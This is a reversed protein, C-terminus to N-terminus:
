AEPSGGSGLSNPFNKTKKESFALQTVIRESKANWQIMIPYILSSEMVKFSVM